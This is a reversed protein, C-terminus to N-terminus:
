PFEKLYIIFPKPGIILTIYITIIKKDTILIKSTRSLANDTTFRPFVYQSLIIFKTNGSVYIKRGFTHTM